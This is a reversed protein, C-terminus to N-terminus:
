LASATGGRLHREGFREVMTDEATGDDARHDLSLLVAKNNNNNRGSSTVGGDGHHTPQNTQHHRCDSSHPDSKLFHITDGIPNSIMLASRLAGIVLV